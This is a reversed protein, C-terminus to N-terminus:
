SFRFLPRGYPFFPWPISLFIIAFAIGVVLATRGQRKSSDGLRRARASGVHLVAAAIIMGVLHEVAFFRLASVKMAEKAHQLMRVGLPSTGFYMLLGILLQVDFLGVFARLVKTDADSWARGARAGSVARVFAVVGAVLVLWRLLSHMVLLVEPLSM